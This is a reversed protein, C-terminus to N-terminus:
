VEEVGEKVLVRNDIKRIIQQRSTKFIINQM